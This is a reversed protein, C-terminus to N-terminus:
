MDMKMNSYEENYAKLSKVDAYKQSQSVAQWIPLLVFDHIDVCLLIIGVAHGGQWQLAVESLSSLSVGLNMRDSQRQKQTHRGREREMEGYHESEGEGKRRRNKQRGKGSRETERERRMWRGRGRRVVKAENSGPVRGEHHLRFM